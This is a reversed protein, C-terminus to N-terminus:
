RRRREGAAAARLRTRLRREGTATYSAAIIEVTELTMSLNTAPKSGTLHLKRAKTIREGLEDLPDGFV